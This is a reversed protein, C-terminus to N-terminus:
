DNVGALAEELTALLEYHTLDYHLPTVSIYGDAVAALDSAEPASDDHDLGFWFYEYGRPDRCPM